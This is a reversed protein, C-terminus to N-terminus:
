RNSIEKTKNLYSYYTDIKDLLVKEGQAYKQFMKIFIGKNRTYNFAKFGYDHYVIVSPDHIINYGNNLLEFCFHIDEGAALQFDTSFKIEVLAESIISLNCTPGYLLLNSNNFVRGNLTGNIDHYLGFWSKNFSLTKGSIVQFSRNNIFGKIITEIWDINPLVDSDTFSIIDAGLDLAKQIGINRANAPGQNKSLQIKEVGSIQYSYPSCDDIIIIKKAKVTQQKLLDITREIQKKGYSDKIYAPIVVVVKSDETISNIKDSLEIIVNRDEPAPKITGTNKKFTEIELNKYILFPIKYWKHKLKKKWYKLTENEYVNIVFSMIRGGNLM